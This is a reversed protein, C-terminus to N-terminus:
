WNKRKLITSSTVKETNILCKNGKFATKREAEMGCNTKTAKNGYRWSKRVQVTADLTPAENPGRGPFRYLRQEKLGM